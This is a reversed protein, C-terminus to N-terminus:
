VQKNKFLRSDSKPLFISEITFMSIVSKNGKVAIKSDRNKLV